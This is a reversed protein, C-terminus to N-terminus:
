RSKVVAFTLLEFGVAVLVHPVHRIIQEVRDLVPDLLTRNGSLREEIGFSGCGVECGVSKGGVEEIEFRDHECNRNPLAAAGILLDRKLEAEM